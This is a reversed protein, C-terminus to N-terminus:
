DLEKEYHGRTFTAFKKKAHRGNVKDLAFEIGMLTGKEDFATFDIGVMSFDSFRELEFLMDVHVPNYLRLLKNEDFRAKYEFGKRDVLTYDGQKIKSDHSYAKSTM